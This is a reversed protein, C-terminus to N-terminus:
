CGSAEGMEDVLACSVPETWTFDLDFAERSMVAMYDKLLSAAYPMKIRGCRRLGWALRDPLDVDVEDITVKSAKKYKGFQVKKIPGSGGMALQLAPHFSEDGNGPAKLKGQTYSDLVRVLPGMAKQLATQLGPLLSKIAGQESDLRVRGDPRSSSLDLISLRASVAARLDCVYQIGDVRFQLPTEKLKEKERIAVEKEKLPVLFAMELDRKGNDRIAIDCPQALLLFRKPNDGPYELRDLEFVDGCAVPAHADNILSEHEWVELSRFDHLSKHIPSSSANLPIGRLARLRETSKQVSPSKAFIDRIRQAMTVSVAREVVHLESVGEKRGREIVFAELQEPPIDLLAKAAADYASKINESMHLLVEHMSKRLGARKIAVRLSNHLEEENEPDFSLRQKAIVCIPVSISPDRELLASRLENELIEEKDISAEHTLIFATGKSSLERLTVLVELGRHPGNAGDRLDIIYSISSDDAACTDPLRSGYEDFTWRDDESINMLRCLIAFENGGIEDTAMRFVAKEQSFYQEKISLFREKSIDTLVQSIQESVGQEDFEFQEVLENLEEFDCLRTVEINNCLLKALKAPTDHFQDDIWIVRNVGLANLAENIKM